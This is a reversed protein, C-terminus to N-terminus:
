ETQNLELEAIAYTRDPLTREVMVRWFRHPEESMLRFHDVRFNPDTAPYARVEHISDTTWAKKDESFEFRIANPAAAGYVWKISASRVLKAMGFGYAVYCTKTKDGSSNCAWAGDTGDFAFMASYGDATGEAFGSPLVDRNRHFIRLEPGVLPPANSSVAPAYSVEARALSIAVPQLFAM